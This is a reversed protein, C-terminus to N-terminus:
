LTRLNKITIGKKHLEMIGELCTDFDKRTCYLWVEYISSNALNANSVHIGDEDYKTLNDIVYTIHNKHVRFSLFKNFM